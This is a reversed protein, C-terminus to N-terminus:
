IYNSCCCAPNIIVCCCCGHSCCMSAANHSSSSSSSSHIAGCCNHCKYIHILASVRHRRGRTRANLSSSSRRACPSRSTHWVYFEPELWAVALQQLLSVSGIKRANCGLGPRSQHTSSNSCRCVSCRVFERKKEKRKYYSINVCQLLCPANTFRTTTTDDRVCTRPSPRIRVIKELECGVQVGHDYFKEDRYWFKEINNALAEFIEHRYFFEVITLTDKRDLEY